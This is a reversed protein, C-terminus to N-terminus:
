RGPADLVPLRSPPRSVSGRYAEELSIDHSYLIQGTARELEVVAKSYASLAAVENSQATALDRQVLIVNYITSAGLAYKKQEADLTQEQLVRAKNAARYRARAQQLGILANQVDVRVQNELQQLGLEQQRLTLQDRIMDAQAARNRLPINLQFGANYDPFNRAFLQTLVTGYGGIFFPNPQGRPAFGQGEPIPLTNIQGALANNQLNVFADLTPLLQSRSGKLNIKTNEIQIRRQALEPRASMAQGVMDQIPQIAETDPMRISDTPVIRAEAVAPSAVGSRSLANKLITEQQFLQTEALTLDQQRSAMEAEARVIEIPALTGIEVQKQNDQYLRESTALAQRRVRVEENMTALDWYLNAIAAVTTIVQQKFVLDSVERNNRAIRILRSNVSPGFGQLLRQTINLNLSGSRSPNLESRISNTAVDANSMGLSVTTGTLFGQQLSFNAVDQRTILTTTGTVFTATQPNTNHAWRMFGTLVPDLNPVATGTQTIITGGGDSGQQALAAASTSVGTAQGQQGGAGTPGQRVSQPIGRLLGGARARQIDAEAMMPGYRQIAIDLNNELALAITDQLSLYLRGARLLDELRGSNALNIPPVEPPTYPRTFRGFRGEPRTIEPVELHSGVPLPGSSSPTGTQALLPSVLLFVCTLATLHQVSFM